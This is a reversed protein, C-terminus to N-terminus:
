GLVDWHLYKFLSMVMFMAIEQNPIVLKGERFVSWHLEHRLLGRQVNLPPDPAGKCKFYDRLHFIERKLIKITDHSIKITLKVILDLILDQIM